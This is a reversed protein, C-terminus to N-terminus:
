ALGGAAVLLGACRQRFLAAVPRRHPDGQWAAQVLDAAAVPLGDVSPRDGAQVAAMIDELALGQWPSARTLCGHLMIGASFVDAPFFLGLDLPVRGQFAQLVEPAAYRVTMANLEPMTNLLASLRNAHLNRSTGLDGLAVRWGGAPTASVFVNAPKLDCHAVGHAHMAELGAAWQHCIDAVALASLQIESCLLLSLDSDFREMVVAAPAESYGFLRVVGPCDRLLWMLAVENQFLSHRVPEMSEVAMRKIAVVEPCGLRALTGAGVAQAAFVSAQAGMGLHGEDVPRFDMEVDVLIAGPLALEVITNMMTADEDDTAKGPAPTRERRQVLCVVLLILLLLLLLLGVALGVALGVQSAKPRVSDVCGEVGPGLCSAACSAHCPMCGASPGEEDVHYGNPCTEVCATRGLLYRGSACRDCTGIDPCDLIGGDTVTCGPQDGAPTCRECGALCSLCVGGVPAEAGSCTTVCAGEVPRLVLGEPCRTCFDGLNLCSACASDCPQCASAGPPAFEGAPCERVCAGSSLVFGAECATCVGACAAGASACGTCRSPCARCEGFAACGHWGAPCVSVCTGGPMLMDQGRCTACTGAEICTGCSAECEVCVNDEAFFGGPCATLCSGQYLARAGSCGVCQDVGAGTCQGCTSHCPLCAEGHQFTGAPCAGHCQSGVLFPALPDCTLCHDPGPGYCTACVAHCTSCLNGLETTGSPCSAVCGPSDLLWGRECLACSATAGPCSVCHASCSACGAATTSYGAPCAPMCRMPSQGAPLALLDGTCTGCETSRVGTCEGCSPHCPLCRGAAATHGTACDQVCEGDQLVGGQCRWCDRNTPGNCAACAADCPLCAGGGAHYQGEPCGSACAGVGPGTELLDFGAACGDCQDAQGGVCTACSVDCPQCSEGNPWFGAPCDAVCRGDAQLFRLPECAFCADETCLACGVDCPVCAGTGGPPPRALWRFGEACAECEMAGGTCLDCSPDCEACREPGVYMGPPCSSTCLSPVAADAGMFVLGPRCVTCSMADVCEACAGDCQGCSGDGALFRQGLCSTCTDGSTCMGCGAPCPECTHTDAKPWMGDPCVGVCAGDLLWSGSPCATCSEGGPGDCEACRADCPACQVGHHGPPCTMKLPLVMPGGYRSFTVLNQAGASLAAAQVPDGLDGPLSVMAPLWLPEDDPLQNALPISVFMAPQLTCPGTAGGPCYMLSIGVFTRAQVLLASPFAPNVAPLEVGQFLVDPARHGPSALARPFTGLVQERSLLGNSRGGPLMDRPTRVALWETGSGRVFVLEAPAAAGRPLLVPVFSGEAASLGSVFLGSLPMARPDSGVMAVPLATVGPTSDSWVIWDGPSTHARGGAAPGVSLSVVAGGVLLSEKLGQSLPDFWLINLQTLYSRFLISEPSLRHIAHCSPSPHLQVFQETPMCPAPGSCQLTLMPGQGDSRCFALLYRVRGAYLFPGLEAFDITYGSPSVGSLPIERLASEVPRDIDGASMIYSKDQETFILVRPGPGPAAAAPVVMQGTDPDVALWTHGMATIRDGPDLGPIQYPAPPSLQFVPLAQGGPQCTGGVPLFGESCSSVCLTEGNGPQLLYSGSCLLCHQGECINCHEQPCPLCKHGPQTFPAEGAPRDLYWGDQCGACLHGPTVFPSQVHGIGCTWGASSLSPSGPGDCLITRDEECRFAASDFLARKGSVLTWSGPTIADTRLRILQLDELGVVASPLVVRRWSFIGQHLSGQWLRDLPNSVNPLVVYFPAVENLIANAPAALFRAGSRNLGAPLHTDVPDGVQGIGFCPVVYISGTDLLAVVDSAQACTSDTSLTRTVTMALINAPLDLWTQYVNVSAVTAAFTVRRGSGMFFSAGTGPMALVPGEFQIDLGNIKVLGTGTLRALYTSRSLAPDGTLGLLLAEDQSTAVGALIETESAPLPYKSPSTFFRVMSRTHDVILPAMRAALPLFLPPFPSVNAPDPNSFGPGVRGFFTGWRVEAQHEFSTYQLFCQILTPSSRIIATSHGRPDTSFAVPSDALTLPYPAVHLFIDQGQSLTILLVSVLLALVLLFSSGAMPALRAQGGRAVAGPVM